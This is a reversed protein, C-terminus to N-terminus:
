SRAALANNSINKTKSHEKTKLPPIQAEEELLLVFYKQAALIDAEQDRKNHYTDKIQKPKSSM